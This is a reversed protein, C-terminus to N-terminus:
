FEYSVASSGPLWLVSSSADCAGGCTVSSRYGPWLCLDRIIESLHPINLFSLFGWFGLSKFVSFHNDSPLQPTLCTLPTSLISGMFLVACHMSSNLWVTGRFSGSRQASAISSYSSCAFPFAHKVGEAALAISYKGRMFCGRAKGKQSAISPM